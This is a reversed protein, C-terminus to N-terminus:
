PVIRLVQGIGPQSGNNSVYVAGDPGVVVGTPFSLAATVVTRAGGPAVHILRGPGGFFVPASAFELVYLGGDPAFAFDTITKFGGEYVVPAQGPVVRYIAANGALFPVGSLISVYLAGDPGRQVETPVAESQNFPPPAPLSAFVAVVSTAGDADVEILSNGGADTIFRHGPENLVGYPNSDQPGGAPNQAIEVASVDAVSRWEGSAALQIMHGFNAGLAGLGSRLAPDAGWGISVVANGRGLFAIDHPGTIDLTGPNYISPLGSVVRERRGKWYRTVAGTGSYCSQGRAVTVCPGNITANGTEVVYLAGEPGFALGRPSDLGDLYVTTTASARPSVAQVTNSPSADSGPDAPQGEGCAALALLSCAVWKAKSM